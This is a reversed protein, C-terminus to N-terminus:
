KKGKLVAAAKKKHYEAWRKKLATVIRKRGAASIRRKKRPAAIPVARAAKRPGGLVRRVQAIQNEIRQRQGELGVLAAEFISPDLAKGKPM